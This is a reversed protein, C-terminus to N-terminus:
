KASNLITEPFVDIDFSSKDAIVTAPIGGLTVNDGFSKNVVANAGIAVNNGISINGFIKAGPAIYVNNGILPAGDYDGISTSPHMRCNEGVRTKPSVVITGHHVLCLGAGFVNKPITYGLRVGARHNILELGFLYFAAFPNNRKCNYIYEIRRLRRLFRLSDIRFYDYLSLKQLGYAQLDRQLYYKYTTKDTIM